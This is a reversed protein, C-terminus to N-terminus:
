LYMFKSWISSYASVALPTVAQPNIAQQFLFRGKPATKTPNLLCSPPLFRAMEDCPQAARHIKAKPRVIWKVSKGADQLGM